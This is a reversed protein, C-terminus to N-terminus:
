AQEDVECFSAYHDATYYVHAPSTKEGGGVLRRAGRDPSGPAKPASSSRPPEPIQAHLYAERNLQHSVENAIRRPFGTRLCPPFAPGEKEPNQRHPRTPKTISAQSLWAVLM